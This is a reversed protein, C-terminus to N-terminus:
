FPRLAYCERKLVSFNKLRTKKLRRQCLPLCLTSIELIQFSLAAAFKVIESIFSVPYISQFLALSNICKTISINKFSGVFIVSSMTRSKELFCITFMTFLIPFLIFQDVKVCDFFFIGFLCFTNHVYYLLICGIVVIACHKFIVSLTEDPGCNFITHTLNGKRQLSTLFTGSLITRCLGTGSLQIAFSYQWICIPWIWIMWLM